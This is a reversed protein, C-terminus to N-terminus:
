CNPLAAFSPATSTGSPLMLPPLCPYRSHLLGAAAVGCLMSPPPLVGVFGPLISTHRAAAGLLIAFDGRYNGM